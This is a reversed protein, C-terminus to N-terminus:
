TSNPCALFIGFENNSYIENLFTNNELREFDDTEFRHTAAWVETYLLLDFKSLVIYKKETYSESVLNNFHDGVYGQEEFFKPVDKRESTVSSGLLADSFRAKNTIGVYKIYINKNDFFWKMGEMEMHTIQNNPQMIYPSHYVNFVAIVGSLMVIVIIITPVFFKVINYQLRNKLLEYLEYLAFGGLLQSSFILFRQPRFPDVGLPIVFLMLTVLCITLFMMCLIFINEIKFSSFLKRIILLIAISSLVIYVLNGGYMRFLMEILDVGHLSAKDLIDTAEDAPTNVTEGAIWKAIYRIEIGWIAYSSVWMISTIILILAPKISIQHKSQFVFKKNKGFKKIHYLVGFIVKSLEVVVIMLFIFVASFIHFFPYLILLIVLLATHGISSKKSFYLYMVLPVMLLSLGNPVLVTHYSGMLMLAGSTTALLIHGREHFVVTSLLYIFLIYLMSFLAPIYGIITIPTIGSLCAVEIILIHTIPYFNDYSFHGSSSIDLIYGVHALVDERGYLAYGRLVPLVLIVLNSLGIIFLGILWWNSRTSEESFTQNIILIVGVAISCILFLWVMPPVSTYMSLEYGASPKNYLLILAYTLLFFSVSSSLKKLRNIGCGM